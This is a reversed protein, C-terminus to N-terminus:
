DRTLWSKREPEPFREIAYRLTTRPLRSYNKDLYDTLVNKDRKGVERLMWGMAKHILDHRHSLLLDVIALTPTFEDKRIFVLTSVIAIRQRWLNESKALETLIPMCDPCDAQLFSGLILGCSLDVLDWNNAKDAHKLYFKAIKERRSAKLSAIEVSDKQRPMNSQMEEVLLLFGALRVEHWESDLLLAIEDLPVSLRVKKVVGRTQPVKLGLFEDGEGYEGKGTKFFRMLVERQKDDRLDALLAIVEEAEVFGRKMKFIGSM